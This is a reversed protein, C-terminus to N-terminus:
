LNLFNVFENNKVATYDQKRAKIYEHADKKIGVNNREKKKVSSKGRFIM